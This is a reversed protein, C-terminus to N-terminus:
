NAAAQLADLLRRRLPQAEEAMERQRAAFIARGEPTEVRIPEVGLPELDYPAVQMDLLRLRLTLAFCDAMVDSGVLPALRASWRYLDMNVHLCGSQDLELQTARTPRYTNLPTAAATFFRFADIHSCRLGVDVITKRLTADSVRLPWAAHRVEATEYVMAWEHLAFCDFRQQRDTTALLLKVPGQAAKVLEARASDSLQVGDAIRIYEPWRLYANAEVGALTVGLGPHWRRLVAPRVQYYDYVFDEVPHREGRGRRELHPVVWADVREVHAARRPLWDAAPLISM